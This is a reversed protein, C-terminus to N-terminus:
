GLFTVRAGDALCSFKLGVVSFPTVVCNFGHTSIPTYSFDNDGEWIEQVESRLKLASRCTVNKVWVGQFYFFGSSSRCRTGYSVHKLKANTVHVKVFYGKARNNRYSDFVTYDGPKVQVTLSTSQGPKVPAGKIDKYQQGDIGIGHQGKATSPVLTAFSVVGQPIELTPRPLAFGPLSENVVLPITPSYSEDASASIAAQPLLMLAALGLTIRLGRKM